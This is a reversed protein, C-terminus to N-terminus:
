ESQVPDVAREVLGSADYEPFLTTTPICYDGKSDKENKWLINTKYAERQFFRHVPKNSAVIIGQAVQTPLDADATPPMDGSSTGDSKLVLTKNLDLFASYYPVKIRSPAYSVFAESPLGRKLQRLEKVKKYCFEFDNGRTLSIDLVNGAESACDKPDAAAFTHFHPLVGSAGQPAAALGYQPNNVQDVALKIKSGCVTFTSATVKEAGWPTETLFYETPSFVNERKFVFGFSKEIDLPVYATIGKKIEFKVFDISTDDSQAVSHMSPQIEFQHYAKYYKYNFNKPAFKATEAELGASAKKNLESFVNGSDADEEPKVPTTGETLKAKEEAEKIKAAKERADMENMAFEVYKRNVDVLVTVKRGLEQLNAANKESLKKTMAEENKALLGELTAIVEVQRIVQVKVNYAGVYSQINRRNISCYVDGGFGTVVRGTEGGRFVVNRDKDKENARVDCVLQWPAEEPFYSLPNVFLGKKNKKLEKPKGQVTVKGKGHDLAWQGLAIAGDSAVFELYDKDSFSLIKKIGQNVLKKGVKEGRPAITFTEPATGNLQKLIFQTTAPDYIGEKVKALSATIKGHNEDVWAWNPAVPSNVYTVDVTEDKKSGVYVCMVQDTAEPDFITEDGEHRGGVGGINCSLDEKDAVRVQVKQDSFGVFIPINQDIKGDADTVIKFKASVGNSKMGLDSALGRGSAPSYSGTKQFSSHACSMTLSLGAVVVVGGLHYRKILYM